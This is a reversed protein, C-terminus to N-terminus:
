ENVYLLRETVIEKKKFNDNLKYTIGVGLMNKFQIGKAPGGVIETGDAYATFQKNDDYALNTSYNISIFKWPHLSTTTTWNVDINDPKSLYNSFLKVNTSFALRDKELFKDHYSTIINAGAELRTNEYGVIVNTTDLYVVKNGYLGSKAIDDDNIVRLKGTLAGTFISFHENPKYEIGIGLSFDAPALFGSQVTGFEGEREGILQTYEGNEDDYATQTDTFQSQINFATSYYWDESKNIPRGYKSLFDLDDASKSFHEGNTNDIKVMGYHLRVNNDWVAQSGDKSFTTSYFDVLSTISIAGLGGASYFEGYGSHSFNLSGIGGYIFRKTQASDVPEVANAQPIIYFSVLLFLLTKFNM